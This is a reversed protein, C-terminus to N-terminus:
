RASTRADVPTGSRTRGLGDRLRAYLGEWQDVVSRIDYSAKAHHRAREGLAQREEEPMRMMAIMADALATSDKPAIVVGRGGGAIEANGGVDTVIMPMAAAAAEILVVPLAEWASSMVFANCAAMLRPVDSRLGLFTVRDALGMAQAEARKADLLVGEGGILLRAGPVAESARAFARLLNSYDKQEDRFSGLALWTFADGVGLERRLSDRAARDPTFESLHVGNPIVMGSGRRIAGGEEHIRLSAETVFTFQQCAWSTARYARQRRASERPTHATNVVVIRRSLPDLATRLMRAAFNGGFLHGHIVDPAFERGYRVLDVLGRPDLSGRQLGIEHTTVGARELEERFALFKILVVSGVQHGRRTLEIALDRTQIEAGGRGIEINVFLIRM